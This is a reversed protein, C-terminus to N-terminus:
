TAKRSQTYVPQPFLLKLSIIYAPPYIESSTPPITLITLGPPQILQPSPLKRIIFYLILRLCHIFQHLYPLNAYIPSSLLCNSHEEKAPIPETSQTPPHQIHAELNPNIQNYVIFKMLLLIISMIM